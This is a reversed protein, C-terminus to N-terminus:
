AIKLWGSYASIRGLPRWDARVSFHFRGDVGHERAAITPALFGPLKVGLVSVSELMMVLAASEVVLRYHFRVLGFREVLKGNSRSMESRMLFGPFYRSWIERDRTANLEFGFSESFARIPLGLGLCLLKAIPNEAPEFNCYGSYQRVGLVSHFAKVEPALNAFQDAMVQQYLSMDKM